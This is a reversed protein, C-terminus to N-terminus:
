HTLDIRKGSFSLCYAKLRAFYFLAEIRLSTFYLDLPVRWLSWLPSTAYKWTSYLMYALVGEGHDLRDYLGRVAPVQIRHAGAAWERQFRHVVKISPDYWIVKGRRRLERCFAWDESPGADFGGIEWFL